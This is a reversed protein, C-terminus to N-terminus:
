ENSFLPRNSPRDEDLAKKLFDFTESQETEDGGLLSRLKRVKATIEKKNKPMIVKKNEIELTIPM